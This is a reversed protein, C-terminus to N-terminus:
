FGWGAFNGMCANARVTGDQGDGVFNEALFIERSFNGKGPVNGPCKGHVIEEFALRSDCSM